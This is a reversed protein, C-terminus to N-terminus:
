PLPAPKQSGGVPLKWQVGLTFDIGARDYLNMRARTGSYERVPQNLRNSAGFTLRTDKGFKCAVSFEADFAGLRYNDFGPNIIDEIAGSRYRLAADASLGKREARYVVNVLHRPQAKLTFTEGPRSPIWTDSHLLTYSLTASGAAIKGPLDRRSSQWSTELGWM